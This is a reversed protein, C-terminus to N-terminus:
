NTSFFRQITKVGKKLAENAAAKTPEIGINNIGKKNFYQLLYGDNSAIELINSTTNLNFREVTKNVFKSSHELWSTSTSSFYAYDENFLVEPKEYAPVQMLWCKSCLYVKLPFTTEPKQLDNESLYANSFPQNGLDIVENHLSESCHRCKYNM